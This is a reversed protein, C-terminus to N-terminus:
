RGGIWSINNNCLHLKRISPNSEMIAAIHQASDDGLGCSSLDLLMLTHNGVLSQSLSHIGKSSFRNSALRVSSLFSNQPM